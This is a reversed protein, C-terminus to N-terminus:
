RGQTEFWIPHSPSPLAAFAITPRLRWATDVVGGRVGGVIIRRAPAAAAVCDFRDGCALCVADPKAKRAGVYGGDVNVFTAIRLRARDVGPRPFDEIGCRAGINFDGHAARPQADDASGVSGFRMAPEVNSAAFTSADFDISVCNAVDRDATELLAM